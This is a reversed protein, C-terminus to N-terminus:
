IEIGYFSEKHHPYERLIRCQYAHRLEHELIYKTDEYNYNVWNNRYITIEIRGDFSHCYTYGWNHSKRTTFEIELNERLYDPTYNEFQKIFAKNVKENEKGNYFYPTPYNFIYASVSSSLLLALIIHLKLKRV